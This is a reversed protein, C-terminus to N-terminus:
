FYIKDNILLKKDLYTKLIEKKMDHERIFNLNLIVKCTKESILLVWLPNMKYKFYFSVPSYIAIALAIPTLTQLIYSDHLHTFLPSSNADWSGRELLM